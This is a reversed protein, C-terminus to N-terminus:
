TNAAKQVPGAFILYYEGDIYAVPMQLYEGANAIVALM